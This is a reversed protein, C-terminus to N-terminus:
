DLDKQNYAINLLPLESTTERGMVYEIKEKIYSLPTRVLAYTNEIFDIHQRMKSCDEEVIKNNKVVIGIITEINTLREELRTMIKILKDDIGDNSANDINNDM